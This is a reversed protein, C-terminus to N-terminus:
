TYLVIQALQNDQILGLRAKSKLHAGRKFRSRIRQALVFNQRIATFSVPFHYLSDQEDIGLQVGAYRVNLPHIFDHPRKVVGKSCIRVTLPFTLSEKPRETVATTSCTRQTFFQRPFLVRKLCSQKSQQPGFLLYLLLHHTKPVVAFQYFSFPSHTTLVHSTLIKQPHKQKNQMSRLQVKHFKFDRYFSKNAQM